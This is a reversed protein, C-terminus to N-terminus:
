GPVLLSARLAGFPVPRPVQGLGDIQTGIGLWTHLIDDNYSTKTPGFVTGGQQTPQVITLQFSRPPYAPLEGNIELGLSYTKGTRILKAAEQVGEPSLNNAAGIEDDAGWKSPHWDDAMAASNLALFGSAAIALAAKGRFFSAM